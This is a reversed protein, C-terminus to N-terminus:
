RSNGFIKVFMWTGVLLVFFVLVARIVFSMLSEEISRVGGSFDVWLGLSSALLSFFIWFLAIKTWNKKM